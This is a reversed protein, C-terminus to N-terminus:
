DRVGTRSKTVVHVIARWAGKDMPNGLCSYQLPNGNGEGSSRGSGPYLTQMAPLSKVMQAMLSAQKEPGCSWHLNMQLDRRSLFNPWFFLIISNLWITRKWCGRWELSSTQQGSQLGSMGRTDARRTLLVVPTRCWRWGSEWGLGHYEHAPSDHEKRPM